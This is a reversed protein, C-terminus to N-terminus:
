NGRPDTVATIRGRHDREFTVSRGRNSTIATDTFTLRNGNRDEAAVFAGTRASVTYRLGSPERVEYAGVARESYPVGGAATAFTTGGDFTFLYDDENVM